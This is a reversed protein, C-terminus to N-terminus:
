CCAPASRFRGVPQFQERRESVDPVGELGELLLHCGKVLPKLSLHLVSYVQPASFLSTRAGSLAQLSV